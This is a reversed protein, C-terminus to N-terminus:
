DERREAKARFDKDFAVLQERIKRMFVKAQAEAKDKAAKSEKKSDSDIQV